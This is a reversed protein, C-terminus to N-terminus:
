KPAAMSHRAAPSHDPPAGIWRPLLSGVFMGVLATMFGVLQPPWVTHQPALVELSIWTTLGAGIAFLAGQTNAHKWYLGACLPIFAAVLTVKYANEVM